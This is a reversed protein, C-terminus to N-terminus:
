RTTRFRLVLAAIHDHGIGCCGGVVTAGAEVWTAVIGAYAEPSLDGRIASLGENAAGEKQSPVFANAYAGRPLNPDTRHAATIAAAMVEAQSCNFLLTEAGVERACRVAAGISEGSRLVPEQKGREIAEVDHTDDLTFSVWLPHTNDGLALHVARAEATSSLTEALWLDVWPSLGSVLPALLDAAREPDFLDPRYSGFLPPLSGAVRVPRDTVENAAIRAVEGARNALMEGESAFRDEGIHFPVVAYSNTTIVDAGAALFDRHVQEVFSPAEILALASWEPQRFPAGLRMLERSMGGDLITMPTQM